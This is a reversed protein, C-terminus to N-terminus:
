LAPRGPLRGRRGLLRDLDEGRVYEMSFALGDALRIVAHAAVTNPHRGLAKEASYEIEHLFRTRMGSRNVIHKGIVKIVEEAGPEGTTVHYVTGMGGGALEGLVTYDPHEHLSPASLAEQSTVPPDPAAPRRGLPWGGLRAEQPARRHGPARDRRAQGHGPAARRLRGQDPPRLRWPLGGRGVRRIGVDPRRGLRRISALSSTATKRMAKLQDIDFPGTVRSGKRVYYHVGDM